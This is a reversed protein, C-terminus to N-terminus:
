FFLLSVPSRPILAGTRQEHGSKRRKQLFITWKPSAGDQNPRTPHRRTLWHPLPPNRMARQTQGTSRHLPAFPLAM